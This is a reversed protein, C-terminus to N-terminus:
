TTPAPTQRETVWITSFGVTNPGAAKVRRAYANVAQHLGALGADRVSTVEFGLGKLAKELLAIDNHPNTLRGIENGYAQKGILLAIRKEAHAVSSMFMLMLITIAIRVM